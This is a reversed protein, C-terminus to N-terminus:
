KTLIGVYKEDQRYIIPDRRIKKCFEKFAINDQIDDSIFIGGDQLYKWVYNYAWMRGSYSKDSDYHVLDLKGNYKKIVEPIGQRDAKRLLTWKSRFEEPVVSGVFAENSMGVYPMDVSMLRADDLHRIALLIALSSWGYAVGTELIRLSKQKRIINYLTVLGGPGGMSIPINKVQQHAYEFSSSFSRELDLVPDNIQLEGFVENVSKAKQSCWKIAEAEQYRDPKDFLRRKLVQVAQPIFQPRKLFWKATSLKM